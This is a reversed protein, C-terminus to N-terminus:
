KSKILQSVSFYLIVIAFLALIFSWGINSSEIKLYGVPDIFFSPLSTSKNTNKQEVPFTINGGTADVILQQNNIYDQKNPTSNGTTQEVLTLPVNGNNKTLLSSFMSAINNISQQVPQSTDVYNGMEQNVLALLAPKPVNYQVAANAVFPMYSPNINQYSAATNAM